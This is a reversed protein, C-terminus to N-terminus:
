ETTHTTVREDMKNVATIEKDMMSLYIIVNDRQYVEM